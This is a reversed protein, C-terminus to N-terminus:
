RIKLSALAILIFFIGMIWFRVIIKSEKVGSLEFHHHLPAMKFVRTGFVKYSFVQVMVSIAEIVFIGGVIPLLLEAKLFIALLGMSGGLSLSGTDGMFIQAPPANYWLFGLCSGVLASIFVTLEGINSVYPIKLYESIITHGSAYAFIGFTVFVLLSTGVALGDLGDTLNVANSTGVLIFAAFFYYFLGFDIFLEKFFPIVVNHFELEKSGSAYFLFTGGLSLYWWCIVFSTVVILFFKFTSSLGRGDQSKIKLYDDLFGILAFAWFGVLSLRIFDNNLNGSILIAFTMSFLIVVGGMSPTGQKKKHTEPTMKRLVNRKDKMLHIFYHGFVVTSVLAIIAAVIARFTIYRFVNFFSLFEYSDVLPYLLHYLM